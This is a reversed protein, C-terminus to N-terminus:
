KWFKAIREVNRAYKKFKNLIIRINILILKGNTLPVFILVSEIIYEAHIEFLNLSSFNIM